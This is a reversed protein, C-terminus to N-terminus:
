GAKGAAEEVIRLITWEDLNGPQVTNMLVVLTVDNGPYYALMARSGVSSGGHLIVKPRNAPELVSWGLAYHDKRVTLWEDRQAADLLENSRLSEAFAALDDVSCLVGTAGRHAWGHPWKIMTGKDVGADYRHPSIEGELPTDGTFGATKMQSPTFVVTRIIEDYGRPDTADLIAALLFYNANSYEHDAGPARSLKNRLLSSV